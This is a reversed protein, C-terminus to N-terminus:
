STLFRLKANKKKRRIRREETSRARYHRVKQLENVHLDAGNKLACHLTGVLDRYSSKTSISTDGICVPLLSIKVVGNNPVECTPTEPRTYM